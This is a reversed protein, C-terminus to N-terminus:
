PRRRGLALAGFALLALTGPEPAGAPIPVGVETEYGWAFPEFEYGTRVGGIWGYNFLPYIEAFRVGLYTQVGEPLLTHFTGYIHRAINPVNRFVDGSPIWDGASHPSLFTGAGSINISEAGGGYPSSVTSMSVRLREGFASLSGVGPQAGAGQTIDLWVLGSPAVWEFHGPEGHAPNDFRLPSAYASTGAAIAAAAALAAAGAHIIHSTPKRRRVREVKRKEHRQKCASMKMQKLM